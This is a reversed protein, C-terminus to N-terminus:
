LGAQGQPCWRIQTSIIPPMQHHHVEQEKSVHGPKDLSTHLHRSNHHKLTLRSYSLPLSYCSYIYTAALCGCPPARKHLLTIDSKHSVSQWQLLCAPCIHRLTPVTGLVESQATKSEAQQAPRLSRMRTEPRRQEISGPRVVRFTVLFAFVSNHTETRAFTHDTRPRGDPFVLIHKWSSTQLNTPWAGSKVVRSNLSGNHKMVVPDHHYLSPHVPECIPLDWYTEKARM